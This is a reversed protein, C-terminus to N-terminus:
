LPLPDYTARLGITIWTHPTADHIWTSVPTASPSVGDTVFTSGTVGLYPGMALQRGRVDFGLEVDPFIPGTLTSTVSAGGSNTQSFTAFEWGLGLAFWGTVKAEPAFTFRADLRVQADHEACSVGATKCPGGANPTIGPAWIATGGLTFVRTFRYGADIGVPVSATELDSLHSNLGSNTGGLMGTPWAYGLRAGLLVGRHFPFAEPAPAFLPAPRDPSPEEDQASALSPAFSSTVLLVSLLFRPNM